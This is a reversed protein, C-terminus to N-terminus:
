RRIRMSIPSLSCLDGIISINLLLGMKDVFNGFYDMGWTTRRGRHKEGMFLVENFDGGICCPLRQTRWVQELEDLFAALLVTNNPGYFGSIMWLRPNGILYVVISISFVRIDSDM